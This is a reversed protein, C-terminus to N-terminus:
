SNAHKIGEREAKYRRRCELWSPRSKCRKVVRLREDKAHCWYDGCGRCGSPASGLYPCDQQPTPVVIPPAKKPMVEVVIAGDVKDMFSAAETYDDTSIFDREETPVPYVELFRPCEDRHDRCYDTGSLKKKRGASTCFWGTCARCSRSEERLLFECFSM